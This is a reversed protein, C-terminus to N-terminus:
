EKAGYQILLDKIRQRITKGLITDGENTKINPDAGHELLFKASDYNNYVCSAYFLPTLGENDQIDIDVGKSNNLLLKLIEPDGTGISIPSNGQTDKSRLNVNVGKDLLKNIITFCDKRPSNIAYFIPTEKRYYQNLDETSMSDIMRYLVDSPYFYTSMARCLTEISYPKINIGKVEPLIVDDPLDELSVGQNEDEADWISHIEKDKTQLVCYKESPNKKSIYFYYGGDLNNDEIYDDFYEQGRGEHGPYMGAICWKTGKGYLQAAPYTTIRYVVWDSDEYLKEAGEAKASKKKGSKSQFSDVFNQVDKIPLKKLKQFDKFENQDKPIKDRIKMYADFLNQGLYEKLADLDKKSELTLNESEYVRRLKVM